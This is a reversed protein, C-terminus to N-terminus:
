MQICVPRSLQASQRSIFPRLLAKALCSMRHPIDCGGAVLSRVLWDPVGYNVALKLKVAERRYGFEMWSGALYHYIAPQAWDGDVLCEIVGQLVDARKLEVGSSLPSIMIRYDRPIGNLGLEVMAMSIAPEMLLSGNRRHYIGVRQYEDVSMRRRATAFFTAARETRRFFFCGANGVPISEVNLIDAWNRVDASHWMGTRQQVVPMSFDDACLKAFVDALSGFVLCDSDIFLTEDFPSYADVRLKQNFPPGWEPNLMLVHDFECAVSTSHSDTILAIPLTPNFRRVSRALNVAQELYRNTGVAMTLIGRESESSHKSTSPM